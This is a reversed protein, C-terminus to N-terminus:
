GSVEEVCPVEIWENAEDVNKPPGAVHFTRKTAGRLFRIRMSPRMAIKDESYRTTLTHTLQGTLQDSVEPETSRMTKIAFWVGPLYLKWNDDDAYDIEGHDNKLSADTRPAEIDGRKANRMMQRGCDRSCNM